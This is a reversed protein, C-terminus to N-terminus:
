PGSPLFSTRVVISSGSSSGGVGVRIGRGVDYQPPGDPGSTTPFPLPGLTEVVVQEGLSLIAAVLTPGQYYFLTDGSMSWVPSTGGASSVLTRSGGGDLRAVYVEPTGNQDSTYAVWPAVPSPRAQRENATTAVIAIPEGSGDARIMVVDRQGGAGLEFVIHQGDWTYAPQTDNGLLGSFLRVGEGGGVAVTWIALQSQSGSVDRATYIVSRGDPSWSGSEVVPSAVLDSTGQSLSFVYSSPASGAAGPLGYLIRDGEPSIRPSRLGARTFLLETISPERQALLDRGVNTTSEIYAIAGTPSVAVDLSIQLWGGVGQAIRIPEGALELRDPDFKHAFITGDTSGYILYGLAYRPALGTTIERIEGGRTDLAFITIDSSGTAAM